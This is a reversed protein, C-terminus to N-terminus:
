TIKILQNIAVQPIAVEEDNEDNGDESIVTRTYRYISPKGTIAIVDGVRIPNSTTLDGFLATLTNDWMVCALTDGNSAAIEINARRKGKTNLSFATVMGATSVIKYDGINQHKAIKPITMLNPAIEFKERIKTQADGLVDVSLIIGLRKAERWALEQRSWEIDTAIETTALTSLTAAVSAIGLRSGFDDLAGAEALAILEGKGIPVKGLLEVVSDFPRGLATRANVIAQATAEKLSAIMKLGLVIEDDVVTPLMESLNVNPCRVNTGSRIVSRTSARLNDKDGGSSSLSGAASEAPYNARLYGLQWALQAYAVSHSANFAYAGASKIADWLAAATAESFALKPRGDETVNSLAGAMFKEGVADMEAQIKKSVAKRVKERSSASFGSVAGALGMLQEQYIPIGLTSRLVTDIVQIEADNSTFASYDPMALKARKADAYREHLKMGLPGPRYLAIIASLDSLTQPQIRACLKQMGDSELQFVGSTKGSGILDWTKAVDPRSLDDTFPILDDMVLDIGRTHKILRLTHGMIGLASLGLADLKLLGIDAISNHEWESVLATTESKKNTSVRTPVIEDLPDTAILIGCAHITANKATGEMKAALDYVEQAEKNDKLIRRFNEGEPITLMDSLSYDGGGPAQVVTRSLLDGAERLELARAADKLAAKAKLYGFAGIRAVRDAGWRDSLYAIVEGRRTDEFDSDIDPMETRDPNLFREFLLGYKLPDVRVIDLCYSVLSGAASGRGPGVLIGQSRAWRLMDAVVLFYDEFGKSVIMKYESNLRDRVEQPLPAGYIREAGAQVDRKLRQASTLDRPEEATPIYHPIRLKAEPLVNDDVMEAVLLTNALAAPAERGFLQYMEESSRLHYGSGDFTWRDPTHLTQGGSLALQAEQARADGVDTFHADNTAVPSLDFSDALGLLKGLVADEVEIGHTMVEVFLRDNGFVDVLFGLNERAREDEGEVLHAVVLGSMCGTLAIIGDSYTELGSSDIVPQGRSTRHEWGNKQLALLNQYGRANQALLTIHYYSHEQNGIKFKDTTKNDPRYYAEIGIIPKIGHKNAAVNLEWAGALTGHDTIAIAPQGDEAAVRCMNDIHQLGDRLSYDTHNHLHAIKRKM